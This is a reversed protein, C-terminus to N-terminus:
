FPRRSEARRPSRLRAAIWGCSQCTGAACSSELSYRSKVAVDVADHHLSRQLSLSLFFRGNTFDGTKKSRLSSLGVRTSFHALNTVPRTPEATRVGHSVQKVVLADDRFRLAQLHVADSVAPLSLLPLIPILPARWNRASRRPSSEETQSGGEGPSHRRRSPAPAGLHIDGRKWAHPPDGPAEPLDRSQRRFAEARMWVLIARKVTPLLLRRLAVVWLNRTRARSRDDRRRPRELAVVWKRRDRELAVM